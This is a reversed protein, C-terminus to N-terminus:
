NFVIPAGTFLNAGTNMEILSIVLFVVGVIATYAVFIIM